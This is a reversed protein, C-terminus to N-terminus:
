FTKKKHKKKSIYIKVTPLNKFKLKTVDNKKIQLLNDSAKIRGTLNKNLL